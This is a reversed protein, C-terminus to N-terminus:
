IWVPAGYWSVLFVKCLDLQISYSPATGAGLMSICMLDWRWSQYTVADKADEGKFVPCNIKMHAGDEQHWRGWRPPPSGDSRDSRSSLLSATSLSSRDSEFGHDPSPSPFWSTQPRQDRWHKNYEQGRLPWHPSPQHDSGGDRSADRIPSGRPHDFRFPQQALLNVRPHGPGEGKSPLRNHSPCHSM